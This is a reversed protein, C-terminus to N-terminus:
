KFFRKIASSENYDNRISHIVLVRGTKPDFVSRQGGHGKMQLAKRATKCKLWFFKGYKSCDHKNADVSVPDDVVSRLYDGICSDSNFDENIKITIRLWDYRTAYFSGHALPASNPDTKYQTVHELGAPQALVKSAFEGIGASAVRDIVIALLDTNVNTYKFRKKKPPKINKMKGVLELVGAKRDDFIPGIYHTWDGGAGGSGGSYIKRDGASMNLSEIIRVNAYYTGNLEPVYKVLPDQLSDILGSCLAKGLLYSTVSKSMSLGLIPLQDHVKESHWDHVIQEGDYYLFSFMTGSKIGKPLPKQLNALERPAEAPKIEIAGFQDHLDYQRRNFYEELKAKKAHKLHSAHSIDVPALFALSIVIVCAVGVRLRRFQNLFWIM